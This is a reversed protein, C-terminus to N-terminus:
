YLYAVDACNRTESTADGSKTVLCLQNAGPALEESLTVRTTGDSGFLLEKPTSVGGDPKIFFVKFATLQKGVVTFPPKPTGFSNPLDKFMPGRLHDTGMPGSSVMATGGADYRARGRAGAGGGSVDIDGAALTGGARLLIVGGSGGGGAGAGGSGATGAAGHALVMGVQLDGGASIEISGGGGGGSGGTGLTSGDGGAGGSSRNPTNLTNLGPDSNDFGGPGGSPLGPAPGTGPTGAGGLGSGGTGGTGGAPGGTRGQASVIIDKVIKVSSRSRLVIPSTQGAAIALAKTPVDIQSYEHVGGTLGTAPMNANADTLEDLGQFALMGSLSVSVPGEACEQTVQVDLPITASAGLTMDIPLSVPVALQLGHEGVALNVNDIEIVPANASGPAPMISVRTNQNVLNEGNIVLIAKRSGGIGTGEYLTTPALETVTVECPRIDLPPPAADAAEKLRDPDYLLSCGGLPITLLIMTALHRGM